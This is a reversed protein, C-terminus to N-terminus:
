RHLPDDTRNLGNERPPSFRDAVVTAEITEAGRCSTMDSATM